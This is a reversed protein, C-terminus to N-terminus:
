SRWGYVAGLLFVAASVVGAAPHLAWLGIIAALVIAIIVLAVLAFALGGILGIFKDGTM